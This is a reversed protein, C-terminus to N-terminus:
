LLSFVVGLAILVASWYGAKVFFLAGEPQAAPPAPTTPM